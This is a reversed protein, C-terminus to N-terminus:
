FLARNSKKKGKGIVCGCSKMASVIEVANQGSRSM